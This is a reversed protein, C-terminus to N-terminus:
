YRMRASSPCTPTLPAYLAALDWLRAEANLPCTHAATKPATSPRCAYISSRMRPTASGQRTPTRCSSFRTPNAQGRAEMAKVSAPQIRLRLQLSTTPKWTATLSLSVSLSAIFAPGLAPLGAGSHGSIACEPRLHLRHLSLARETPPATAVCHHRIAADRLSPPVDRLIALNRRNWGDALPPNADLRSRSLFFFTMSRLM